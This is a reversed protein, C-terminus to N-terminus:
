KEDGALPTTPSSGLMPEFGMKEAMFGSLM